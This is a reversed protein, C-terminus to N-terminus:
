GKTLLYIGAAIGIILLWNTQPQQQQAPATTVVQSTPSPVQSEVVTPCAGARAVGDPGMILCETMPKPLLRYYPAKVPPGYYTTM